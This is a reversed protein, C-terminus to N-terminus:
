VIFREAWYIRKYLWKHGTFRKINTSLCLHTKPKARAPRPLAPEFGGDACAFQEQKM